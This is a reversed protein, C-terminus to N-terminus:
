GSLFTAQFFSYLFSQRDSWWQCLYWFTVWISASLIFTVGSDHMLMHNVEAAIRYLNIKDFESYILGLWFYTGMNRYINNSRSYLMIQRCKLQQKGTELVDSDFCNWVDSFNHSLRLCFIRFLCLIIITDVKVRWHQKAPTQFNM